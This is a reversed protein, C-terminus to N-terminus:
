SLIFRLQLLTLERSVMNEYRTSSTKDHGGRM